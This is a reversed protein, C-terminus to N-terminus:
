ADGETLEDDRMEDYEYDVSDHYEELAEIYEDLDDFDDINPWKM